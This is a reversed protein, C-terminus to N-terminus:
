IVKRIYSFGRPSYGSLYITISLRGVNDIPERSNGCWKSLINKWQWWGWSPDLMAEVNHPDFTVLMFNQIKPSKTPQWCRSFKLTFEQFVITLIQFYECICRCFKSSLLFGNGHVLNWLIYIIYIGPVWISGQTSEFLCGKTKLPQGELIELYSQARLMGSSRLIPKWCRPMPQKPRREQYGQICCVATDCRIQCQWCKWHQQIHQFTLSILLPHLM